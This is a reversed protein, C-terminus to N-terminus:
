EAPLVGALWRVVNLLFQPNQAAVPANMGMRNRNPGGLQASFMAAEGFVAVRGRGVRLAAGQMWGGVDVRRTSDNIAWATDPEFSRAGPGLVMVPTAGPPIRFASGTFSAVSDVREDAGRGETIVHPRLNADRRFLMPTGNNPLTTDLAFGNTFTIGFAAGLETAAGAFPMHDAILLLSGGREVWQRVARIEDATFASPTPLVWSTANSAHVANAVVLVRIGELSTRSWPQDGARVVFGDRRLLQAFPLYRGDPTHFNHHATDVAVVPGRGEAFAPRAIPPSFASDAVQQAAARAAMTFTVVCLACVSRMM